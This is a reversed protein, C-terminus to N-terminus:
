ATKGEVRLAYQYVVAIVLAIFLATYTPYPSGTMWSLMVGVALSLSGAAVQGLVVDGRVDPDSPDGKRVERLPPLFFAYAGVTQGLSITAAAIGGADASM